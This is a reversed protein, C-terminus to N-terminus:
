VADKIEALPSFLYDRNNDLCLCKYRKRILSGKKFLRGNYEFVTGETLEQITKTFPKDEYNRLATMLGIDASTSAYGKQLHLAFAKKVDAPLVESSLFPLSLEIFEKNWESGHPKVRKKHKEKVMMHALEHLLTILFQFPHLNHNITITHKIGNRNYCYDGLKGSRSRTVHLHIKYNVLLQYISPVADAPLHQKLFAAEDLPKIVPM